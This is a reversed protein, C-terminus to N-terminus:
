AELLDLLDALPLPKALHADFGAERSLARDADRSFGSDAILRPAAGQPHSRVTRAVAYGDM